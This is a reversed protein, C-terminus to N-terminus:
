NTDNPDAPNHGLFPYWGNSPAPSAANGGGSNNRFGSGGGQGGVNLTPQQAPVTAQQPIAQTQQGMNGGMMRGGRQGSRQGGGRQGLTDFSPPSIPASTQEPAAPNQQWNGRGGRDGRQNFSQTNGQYNNQGADGRRYDGGHRRNDGSGPAYSHNRYARYGGGSHAQPGYYDAYPYPEVYGQGYADYSGYSDYGGDQYACGGLLILAASASLLVAIRKMKAEMILALM